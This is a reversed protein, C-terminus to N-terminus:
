VDTVEKIKKQMGLVVNVPEIRLSKCYFIFEVIDLHRGGKEVKSVFSRDVNIPEISKPQTLESVEHLQILYLQTTHLNESSVNNM